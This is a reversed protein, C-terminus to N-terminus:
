QSTMNAPAIIRQRKGLKKRYRRDKTTGLREIKGLEVLENLIQRTRPGKLGIAGAIVETTYEGGDEMITLIEKQRKTLGSMSDASEKDSDASKNASKKDSDASKNASEISTRLGESVLAALKRTNESASQVMKNIEAFRSAAEYLGSFGLQNVTKMANSIAGAVENLNARAQPSIGLNYISLANRMATLSEEPVSPLHM